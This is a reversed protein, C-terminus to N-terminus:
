SDLVSLSVLSGRECPPSAFASSGLCVNEFVCARCCMLREFDWLECFAGRSRPGCLQRNGDTIPQVKIKAISRHTCHYRSDDIFFSRETIDSRMVPHSLLAGHAALSAAHKHFRCRSWENSAIIFHPNTGTVIMLRVEGHRANAVQVAKNQYFRPHQFFSEVSELNLTEVNLVQCVRELLGKAASAVEEIHEGVAFDGRAPVAFEVGYNCVKILTDSESRLFLIPAISIRPTAEYLRPEHVYILDLGYLASTIKNIAVHFPIEEPELKRALPAMREYDLLEFLEDVHSIMMELSAFVKILSADVASGENMFIRQPQDFVILWEGNTLVARKPAADMSQMSTFYERLDNLYEQWAHTLALESGQFRGGLYAAISESAPHTEPRFSQGETESPLALSVRKAEVLLLPTKTEHHYGFYDMFLRSGKSISTVAIEPALNEIYSELSQAPSISWNLAYLLRDIIYCRSHAELWEKRELWRLRYPTDNPESGVLSPIAKGSIEAIISCLAEKLEISNRCRKM